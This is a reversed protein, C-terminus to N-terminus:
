FRTLRVGPPMSQEMQRLTVERAGLTNLYYSNIVPDYPAENLARQTTVAVEDLAALRTRIADKEELELSSHSAGLFAVARQYQLEARAMAVVAEAESAFEGAEVSTAGQEWVPAVRAASLVPVGASYRGAAMGVVMLLIAAAIRMATRSAGAPLRPRGISRADRAATAERALGEAIADWSSLPPTLRTREAGAMSLVARHAARERACTACIALHAAEAATPEDDALAALREDSVHLM